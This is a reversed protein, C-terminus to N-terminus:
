RCFFPFCSRNATPEKPKPSKGPKKLEVSDIAEKLTELLTKEDTNNLVLQCELTNTGKKTKRYQINLNDNRMENREIVCNELIKHPTNNKKM